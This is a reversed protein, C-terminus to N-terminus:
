PKLALLLLALIQFLVVATLLLRTNSRLLARRMKEVKKQTRM